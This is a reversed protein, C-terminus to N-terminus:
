RTSHVSVESAASGPIYCASAHEGDEPLSPQTIKSHYVHEEQVVTVQFVASSMVNLELM